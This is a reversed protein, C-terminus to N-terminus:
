DRKNKSGYNFSSMEKTTKSFSTEIGKGKKSFGKLKKENRTYSSMM